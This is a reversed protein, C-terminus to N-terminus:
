VSSVTVELGDSGRVDFFRLARVDRDRWEGGREGPPPVSGEGVNWYLVVLTLLVDVVAESVLGRAGLTPSILFFNSFNKPLGEVV